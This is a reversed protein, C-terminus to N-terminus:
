SPRTPPLALLFVVHSHHYVCEKKNKKCSPPPSAGGQSQLLVVSAARLHRGIPGPCVCTGHHHTSSWGGGGVAWGKDGMKVWAGRAAGHGGTGVPLPTMGARSLVM